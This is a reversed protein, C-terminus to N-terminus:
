WPNVEITEGLNEGGNGTHSVTITCTASKGEVTVTITATGVSLAKVLGDAVSAVSPDSSTWELTTESANSPNITATLQSEEGVALDLTEASLTVSEVAVYNSIVTVVCSATKNGAKVTITATGEAVAKVLGNSVTAVSEDSSTWELVPKDANEPSITATLQRTGGVELTFEDADLAVGTVPVEKHAVTVTCSSSISGATATITASGEAVATVLGEEVKVIASNSSAWSVTWTGDANSPLVSAVLQFSEGPYLTLATENLVVNQLPIAKRAEQSVSLGKSISGSVFTLQASRAELTENPLISVIAEVEGGTGAPPTVVLWPSLAKSGEAYEVHWDTASTFKITVDKGAADASIGSSLIAESESSFNLAPAVEGGGQKCAALLVGAAFVTFLKLTNHM